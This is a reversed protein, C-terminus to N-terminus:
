QPYLINYKELIQNIGEEISSLNGVAAHAFLSAGIVTTETHEVVKVPLNLINARLQNWLRNKSGGGVVILSSATFNGIKQLLDLANKTKEVLSLLASLYIEQRSTQLGIGSISGNDNTFDTSLSLRSSKLSLAEQIMTEYVNDNLFVEKAYFTNKIWELVGSAIWQKGSNYLGPLADFENTLGAELMQKSTDVSRSRTMLIEWTGSSLVADNTMAGSGIMAFQTDHGALVIPIGENLHLEESVSKLLTGAITGPEKLNYFREPIHIASLIKNSFCRTNIDTLMSTGAMTTDNVLEGCLKQVFISPM